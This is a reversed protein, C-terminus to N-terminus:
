LHMDIGRPPRAKWGNSTLERWLSKWNVDKVEMM